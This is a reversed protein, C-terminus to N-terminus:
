ISCYYCIQINIQLIQQHNRRPIKEAKNKKTQKLSFYIIMQLKISIYIFIEDCNTNYASHNLKFSVSSILQFAHFLIQSILYDNDIQSRFYMTSMFSPSFM